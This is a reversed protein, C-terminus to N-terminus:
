LGHDIIRMPGDNIHLIDLELLAYQILWRSGARFFSFPRQDITYLFCPRDCISARCLVLKHSRPELLERDRTLGEITPLRLLATSVFWTLCCFHVDPTSPGCPSQHAVSINSSSLSVKCRAYLVHVTSYSLM